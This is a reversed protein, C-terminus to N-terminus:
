YLRFNLNIYSTGFTEYADWFIEHNVRVGGFDRNEVDYGAGVEFYKTVFYFGVGYVADYTEDIKSTNAIGYGLKFFPVFEENLLFDINTGWLFAVGFRNGLKEYEIDNKDTYIYSRQDITFEWRGKLQHARDFNFDPGFRLSTIDAAVDYTAKTTEDLKKNKSEGQMYGKSLGFYFGDKFAFLQSHMVTLLTLLLFLKM